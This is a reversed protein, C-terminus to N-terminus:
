GGLKKSRIGAAPRRGAPKVKREQERAWDTKWSEPIVQSLPSGHLYLRALRSFEDRV